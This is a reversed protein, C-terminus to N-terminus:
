RKHCDKNFGDAVSGTCTTKQSAKATCPRSQYSTGQSTVCKYLEQAQVNYSLVSLVLIAWLQTKKM